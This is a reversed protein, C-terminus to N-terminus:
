LDNTGKKKDLNILTSLSEKLQENNNREAGSYLYLFAIMWSPNQSDFSYPMDNDCQNRISHRFLTQWLEGVM